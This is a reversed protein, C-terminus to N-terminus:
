ASEKEKYKERVLANTAMNISEIIKWKIWDEYGEEQIIEKLSRLVRIAEGRSITISVTM